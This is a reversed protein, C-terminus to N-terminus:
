FQMESSSGITPVDAQMARSCSAQVGELMGQWSDMYSPEASSGAHVAMLFREGLWGVVATSSLLQPLHRGSNENNMIDDYQLGCDQMVRQMIGRSREQKNFQYLWIVNAQSCLYRHDHWFKGGLAAGPWSYAPVCSGARFVSECVLFEFEERIPM